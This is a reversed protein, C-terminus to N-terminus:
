AFLILLRGGLAVGSRPLSIDAAAMKHGGIAMVAQLHDDREGQHVQEPARGIQCDSNGVVLM